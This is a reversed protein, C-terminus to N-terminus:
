RIHLENWPSLYYAYLKIDNIVLNDEATSNQRGDLFTQQNNTDMLEKLIIGLVTLRYNTSIVRYQITYSNWCLLQIEYSDDLNNRGDRETENQYRWHTNLNNTGYKNCYSWLDPNNSYYNLTVGLGVLKLSVIIEPSNLHM